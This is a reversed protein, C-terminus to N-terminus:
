KVKFNPKLIAPPSQDPSGPENHDKKESEKSGSTRRKRKRPEKMTNAANIADM